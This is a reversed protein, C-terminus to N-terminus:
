DANPDLGKVNKHRPKVDESFKGPGEWLGNNIIEKVEHEPMHKHWDYVMELWAWPLRPYDREMDRLAKRREAKELNTYEYPNAPEYRPINLENCIQTAEAEDM